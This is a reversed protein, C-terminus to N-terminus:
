QQPSASQRWPRPWLQSLGLCLHSWRPCLHSLCHACTHCAVAVLTHPGVHMRQAASVVAAEHSPCCHRMTRKDNHTQLLQRPVGSLVCDLSDVQPLCTYCPAWGSVLSLCLGQTHRVVGGLCVCAATGCCMCRGGPGVRQVHTHGVVGFVPARHRGWLGSCVCVCM